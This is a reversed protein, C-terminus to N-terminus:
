YLHTQSFTRPKSYHNQLISYKRSTDFLVFQWCNQSINFCQKQSPTELTTSLQPAACHPEWSQQQMTGSSWPSAPQQHPLLFSYSHWPTGRAPESGGGQWNSGSEAVRGCWREWWRGWKTGEGEWWLTHMCHQVVAFQRGDGDNDAPRCSPLNQRTLRKWCSPWEEVEPTFSAKINRLRLWGFQGSIPTHLLQFHLQLHSYDPQCIYSSSCSLHCSSRSRTADGWRVGIHLCIQVLFNTRRIKGMEPMLEQTPGICLLTHLPLHAIKVWKWPPIVAECHHISTGMGIGHFCYERFFIKDVGNKSWGM